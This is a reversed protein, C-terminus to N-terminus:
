AHRFEEALVRAFVQTTRMGIGEMNVVTQAIQTDSLEVGEAQLTQRFYVYGADVDLVFSGERQDANLKQLMIGLELYDEPRVRTAFLVDLTLSSPSKVETFMFSCPTDLEFPVYALGIKEDSRDPMTIWEFEEGRALLMKSVISLLNKKTDM